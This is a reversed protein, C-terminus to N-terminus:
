RQRDDQGDRQRDDADAPRVEKRSAIHVEESEHRDDHQDPEHRKFPEINLIRTDVVVALAGEFGLRDMM